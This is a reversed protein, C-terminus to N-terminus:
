FVSSSMKQVVSRFNQWNLIIGLNEATALLSSSHLDSWKQLVKGEACTALLSGLMCWHSLSTLRHILFACNFNFCTLIKIMYMRSSFMRVIISSVAIRYNLYYNLRSRSEVTVSFQQIEPNHFKNRRVGVPSSVDSSVSLPKSKM